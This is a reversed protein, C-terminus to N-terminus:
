RYMPSLLTNFNGVILTFHDTNSKLYMITEKVFKPARIMSTFQFAMKTSNGKILIYLIYHEERDRRCLEPKFEVKNPILIAVSDKKM